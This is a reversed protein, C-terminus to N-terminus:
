ADGGFDPAGDPEGTQETLSHPRPGTGAAPVASGGTGDSNWRPIVVVLDRTGDPVCWCALRSDADRGRATALFAEEDATPGPCTDAGELVKVHCTACACVGGCSHDIDIRAGEAIDLISGALGIRHRSPGGAIVRTEGTEENHFTVQFVPRGLRRLATPHWAWPKAYAHEVLRGLM